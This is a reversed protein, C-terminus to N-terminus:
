SELPLVTELDLVQVVRRVMRSPSRLVLRGGRTALARQAGILVSIGSADVFDLAALDLVMRVPPPDSQVLDTLRARLREATALDLEGALSVVVAGGASREVSARLLLDGGSM